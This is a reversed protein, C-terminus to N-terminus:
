FHSFGEMEGAQLVDRHDQDLLHLERNQTMQGIRTLSLGLEQSLATVEKERNEPVTFLMEYDDGGQWVKKNYAPFREFVKGAAPSFPLDSEFIRAGLGSAECIHRLDAILGDSIDMAANALDRLARGLALRPQPLLYRDVLFDRCKVDQEELTGQRLALGIASDGLTGSVYIVDGARAGFRHLARGKPVTGLATLSITLPGPTSVTDGGLLTLSFEQQDQALGKTFTAVWNRRQEATMKQPLALALLYGKADAGMGALDSLNVRLAKRALMDPADTELFHVSCVLADKTLVLEQGPETQFVAADDQLGFAPAGEGALPAFYRYILDFEGSSM